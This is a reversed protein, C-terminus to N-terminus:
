FVIGWLWKLKKLKGWSEDPKEIKTNTILMKKMFYQKDPFIIYKTGPSTLNLLELNSICPPMILTDPLSKSTIRLYQINSHKHFALSNVEDSNVELGRLGELKDLLKIIEHWRGKSNVSNCTISYIRNQHFKLLPIFGYDLILTRIVKYEKYYLRCKGDKKIELTSLDFNILELDNSKGKQPVCGILYASIILLLSYARYKAINKM